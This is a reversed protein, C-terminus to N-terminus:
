SGNIVDTTVTDWFATWQTYTGDFTPLKLKPLEATRRVDPTSRSTMADQPKAKM